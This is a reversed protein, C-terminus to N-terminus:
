GVGVGWSSALTTAQAVLEQLAVSETDLVADATHYAGARERDLTALAALPDEVTLLPRAAVENGMRMLATTPSVHLYLLRAPPRLLAVVSPQTIWGGGPAIVRSEVFRLRETAERELRRFAPEGDRAFIEVASRGAAREIETDLDVFALGLARAVLAGLTSKGAGPLGVLLLHTPRSKDTHETVVLTVRRAIRSTSATRM